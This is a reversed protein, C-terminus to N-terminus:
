GDAVADIALSFRSAVLGGFQWGAMPWGALLGTPMPIFLVSVQLVGFM